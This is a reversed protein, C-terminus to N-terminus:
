TQFSFIGIYRRASFFCYPPRKSFERGFIARPSSPKKSFALQIPSHNNSDRLHVDAGSRLLVKAVLDNEHLAAIHLPSRSDNDREDVSAGNKILLHATYNNFKLASIHLPTAGHINKAQIDAGNTLLVHIMEYNEEKALEKHAQNESGIRRTLSKVDVTNSVAVHLPTGKPGLANM